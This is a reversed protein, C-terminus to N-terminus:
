SVQVLEKTYRSLVEPDGDTVVVLDEIRVGGLGPLYIGPEVTVVNGADLVDDSEPRLGPAEHVDMGVGHGLGHGFQDGYGAAAIVDRAAADADRAAVGARLAAVGALQARLCVDYIELLQGSVDGAAFTRTCDSCATGVRAGADVVVLEGREVARDGPHAHPQAGNEGTAVISPFAVWDAGAEKLHEFMRWALQAETRGVFPEEALRAYAVDTAAAARRIGDLEDADKVARLAEVLGARPVLEAAGAALTTYAGYSVAEPEFAVRGSLESALGAYLNRPLETFEVGDVATAAERYRFDSFLRVRDPEILLAANSSEFGSLYRVNVANTVLLSEELRERLREVRANM